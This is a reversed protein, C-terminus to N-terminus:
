TQLTQLTEAKTAIKQSQNFMSGGNCFDQHTPLFLYNEKAFSRLREEVIAELCRALASILNIPRYGGNTKPILVVEATKWNHPMKRNHLFKTAVAAVRSPFTQFLIMMTIPSIADPGPSTLIEDNTIHATEQSIDETRQQDRKM